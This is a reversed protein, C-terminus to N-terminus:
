KNELLEQIVPRIYNKFEDPSNVLVLTRELRRFDVEQGDQYKVVVLMPGSVNYRQALAENEQWNVAQWQLRKAQLAEAFEERLLEEGMSEARNCTPCRFSAHMYYVMVRDQAPVAGADAVSAPPTESRTVSKGIVFAVSVLVFALLLKSIIKKAQM